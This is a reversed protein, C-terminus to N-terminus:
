LELLAGAGGAAVKPTEEGEDDEESDEKGNTEYFKKLLELCQDIDLSEYLDNHSKYTDSGNDIFTINGESVVLNPKLHTDLWELSKSYVDSQLLRIVHVGQETALLMKYTDKIQTFEPSSWNSITVFHHPGDLEIIVNLSPIYIDFPLDRCTFPNKCWDPCYQKVSDPYLQKIYEFLKQETKHKCHPCGNGAIARDQIGANWVHNSKCVWWVKEKSGYGITEPLRENKTPHWEKVLYPHTTVISTHICHQKKFRCCFPCGNGRTRNGVTSSFDHLCGESCTKPCRWYVNLDSSHSVKDPTLDGNLTPHWQAAIEPHTTVISKHICIIKNDCHPCGAGISSRSYIVADWEHPCGCDGINTCIWSVTENSGATYDEPTSTNKEYNWEKSLEPHTVALSDKRALLNKRFTALQKQKTTATQSASPANYREMCTDKRREMKQIEICKECKAGTEYLQRFNKAPVQVNCNCIFAIDVNRTLKSYKGILTANDRIMCKELLIKDFKTRDKAM